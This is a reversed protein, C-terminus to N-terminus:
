LVVSRRFSSELLPDLLPPKSLSQDIALSVQRRIREAHTGKRKLELHKDSKVRIPRPPSLLTLIKRRRDTTSSEFDLVIHLHQMWEYKPPIVDGYKNADEIFGRRKRADLHKEISNM